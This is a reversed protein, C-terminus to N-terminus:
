PKFRIRGDARLPEIGPINEVDVQTVIQAIGHAYGRGERTWNKPGQLDALAAARLSGPRMYPVSERIWKFGEATDLDVWTSSM